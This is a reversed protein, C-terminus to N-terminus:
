RSDPMNSAVLRVLLRFTPTVVQRSVSPKADLLSHHELCTEYLICSRGSPDYPRVKALACAETNLDGVNGTIRLPFVHARLERTANSSFNASTNRRNKPQLRRRQIHQQARPDCEHRMHLVCLTCCGMSCSARRQTCSPMCINRACTRV